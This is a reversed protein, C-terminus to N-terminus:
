LDEMYDCPPDDDLGEEEGSSCSEEEQDHYFDEQLLTPNITINFEADYWEEDLLPTVTAEVAM